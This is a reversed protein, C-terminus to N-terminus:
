RTAAVGQGFREATTVYDLTKKSRENPQRVISKGEIGRNLKLCTQAKSVEIKKRLAVVEPALDKTLEAAYLLFIKYLDLKVALIKNSLKRSTVVVIARIIATIM